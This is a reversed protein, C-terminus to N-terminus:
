GDYDNMIGGSGDRKSQQWGRLTAFYQYWNKKLFVFYGVVGGIGLIVFALLIVMVLSIGSKAVPARYNSCMPDDNTQTTNDCVCSYTLTAASYSSIAPKTLCIGRCSSKQCPNTDSRQLLYNYGYLFKTTSTSNDRFFANSDDNTNRLDRLEKTHYIDNRQDIIFFTDNTLVTLSRVKRTDVSEKFEADFSIREVKAKYYGDTVALLYLKSESEDVAISVDGRYVDDSFITENSGDMNSKMLLVSNASYMSHAKLYFVWGSKPALAVAGIDCCKLLKCIQGNNTCVTLSNNSTYYINNTIYDIAVSIIPSSTKILTESKAYATISSKSISGYNNLLTTAYYLNNNAATLATCNHVENQVIITSKSTVNLMKIKLMTAYLVANGYWVNNRCNVGNSGNVPHFGEFCSCQSNAKFKICRQECNSYRACPGINSCMPTSQNDNSDCLCQPGNATVFYANPCKKMISSDTKSCNSNEDSCDFCNCYGDCTLDLDLCRLGDHCLFKDPSTCNKVNIQDGCNLEDTGDDCDKITNCRVTVNKCQSSDCQFKGRNCGYRKCATAAVGTSEDERNDCDKDGDCFWENRIYKGNDCRYTKYLMDNHVQSILCALFFLIYLNSRSGEM